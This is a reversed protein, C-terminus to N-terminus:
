PDTSMEAGLRPRKPAKAPGEEKYNLPGESPAELRRQEPGEPLPPREGAIVPDRQDAEAEADPPHPKETSGAGDELGDSALWEKFDYPRTWCPAAKRWAVAQRLSSEFYNARASDTLAEEVVHAPLCRRGEAVPLAYM